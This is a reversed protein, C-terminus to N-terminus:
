SKEGASSQKIQLVVVFVESFTRSCKRAMIQFKGSELRQRGNPDKDGM